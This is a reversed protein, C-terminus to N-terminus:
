VADTTFEPSICQRLKDGAALGSHPYTFIVPPNHAFYRQSISVGMCNLTALRTALRLNRAYLNLATKRGLSQGNARLLVEYSRV